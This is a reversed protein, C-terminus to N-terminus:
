IDTTAKTKELLSHMEAKGAAAQRVFMVALLSGLGFTQVLITAYSKGAATLQSM